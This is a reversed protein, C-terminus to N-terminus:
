GGQRLSESAERLLAVAEDGSVAPRQLLEYQARYVEVDEPESVVIRKHYLEVAVWPEQGDAHDEYLVFGFAAWAFM